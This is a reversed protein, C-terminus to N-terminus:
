PVKDFTVTLATLPRNPRGDSRVPRVKSVTKWFEMAEAFDAFRKAKAIDASFEGFGQGDAADFDFSQLFQGAHPCEQPHAWAVARMVLPM